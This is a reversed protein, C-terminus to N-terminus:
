VKQFRSCMMTGWFQMEYQLNSAKKESDILDSTRSFFPFQGDAGIIIDGKIAQGTTLTVSPVNEDLSKIRSSLYVQVGLEIAADYLLKQYKARPIAM